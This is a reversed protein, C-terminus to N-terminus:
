AHRRIVDLATREMDRRLDAILKKSGGGAISIPVNVSTTTNGQGKMAGGLAAMQGKTFVGEGRQLIAPFEDPM